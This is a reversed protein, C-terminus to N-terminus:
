YGTTSVFTNAIVGYGTTTAHINQYISCMWTDVCINPNPTTSGGFSTFVDSVPVNFEAADTALHQNLTQVYTLSSPCINQYPDYYNMMVLDGTRVGNVTLAATLQPLIVGTLRTDLNALDTSWNASIACTSPDIDPLLDNAGIDLSVPSVQGAHAKIFSIAAKLQSGSYYNHLLYAYPCGGNIFTYSTEGNCGYNTYSKVHKKSLNSSYWQQPYSHSFDLNPQYGFALSDGLALYYTKPGALTSSRPRAAFASPAFFMGVILALTPAIAWLALRRRRSSGTAHWFRLTRM